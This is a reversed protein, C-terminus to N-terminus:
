VSSMLWTAAGASTPPRENRRGIGPISEDGSSLRPVPMADVNRLVTILSAIRLLRREVLHLLEGDV